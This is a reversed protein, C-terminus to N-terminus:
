SIIAALSPGSPALFKNKILDNVYDLIQDFIPTDNNLSCM